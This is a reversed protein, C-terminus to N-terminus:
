CMRRAFANSHPTFASGHERGASVSAIIENISSPSRDRSRALEPSATTIAAADGATLVVVFM